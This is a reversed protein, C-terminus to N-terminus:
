LGRGKLRLVAAEVGTEITAMLAETSAGLARAVAGIQATGGLQDLVARVAAARLQAAALDDVPGDIGRRATQEVTAVANAISTAIRAATAIQDRRRQDAGFWRGIRLALWGGVPAAVVGLIKALLLITMDSVNGSFPEPPLTSPHADFSRGCERM